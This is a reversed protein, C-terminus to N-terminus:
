LDGRTIKEHYLRKAEEIDIEEVKEVKGDVVTQKFGRGKFPPLDQWSYFFDVEGSM